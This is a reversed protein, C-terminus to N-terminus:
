MLGFCTSIISFSKPASFCLDWCAARDARGANLALKESRDASFGEALNMFAEPEVPGNVGLKQAGIGLWIARPNNLDRYAENDYFYRLARKASLPGQISLM